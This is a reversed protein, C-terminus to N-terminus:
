FPETPDSTTAALEFEVVRLLPPLDDRVAYWVADSDVREDEYRWINGAAAIAHWDIEPRRSRVEDLLRRSAESIVEL